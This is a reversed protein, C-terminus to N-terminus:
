TIPDNAGFGILFARINETLVLSPIGSGQTDNQRRHAKPNSFGATFQCFVQYIICCSTTENIEDTKRIKVPDTM